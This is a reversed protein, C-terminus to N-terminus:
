EPTGGQFEDATLAMTMAQMAGSLSESISKIKELQDSTAASGLSKRLAKLILAASILNPAVTDHFLRYVRHREEMKLAHASDQKTTKPDLTLVEAGPNNETPRDTDM